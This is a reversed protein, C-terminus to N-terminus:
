GPLLMAPTCRPTGCCRAPAAPARTRAGPAADSRRPAKGLSDVKPHLSRLECVVEEVDSALRPVDQYGAVGQLMQQIDAKSWTTSPM